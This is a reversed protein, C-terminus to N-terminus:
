KITGVGTGSGTGSGTGTGTGTCPGGSPPAIITAVGTAPLTVTTTVTSITDTTNVVTNQTLYPILVSMITIWTAKNAAVAALYTAEQEPTPNTPPPPLGLATAILTGPIVGSQDLVM